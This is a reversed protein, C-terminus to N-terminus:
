TMVRILWKLDFKHAAFERALEDLLEPHHAQTESGLMDDVPDTLGHGFFQLWLRNVAAKAFYPNNPSTVWDALTNRSGVKFKWQPESGDLFSAQVVREGGPILMERRDM